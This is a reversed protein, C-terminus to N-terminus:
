LQDMYARLHRRSDGFTTKLIEKTVEYAPLSVWLGVIAELAGVTLNQRLRAMKLNVPGQIQAQRM